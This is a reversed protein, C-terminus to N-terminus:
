ENFKLAFRGGDYFNREYYCFPPDYMTGYLQGDDTATQDSLGLAAAALSCEDIEPIPHTCRGSTVISYLRPPAQSPPYDPSSPPPFPSPAPPPPSPSPPSALVSAETACLQFGGYALYSDSRWTVIEGRRVFANRPAAGKFDVGGITLFDCCREVDYSTATAYLDRLAVAHCIENNGHDGEGDWFCEGNATLECFEGGDLVSWWDTAAYPPFSPTPPQPLTPPLTPPMPPRSFSACITFGGNSNSVDATWTMTMGAAMYVDQPGSSGTGDYKVGSITIYDYLPEVDYHTATAYLDSVAAVVCRESNGHDGEGDWM